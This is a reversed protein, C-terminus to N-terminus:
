RRDEAALYEPNAIRVKDTVTARVHDLVEDHRGDLSSDRIAAALEANLGALDAEHGLLAVLRRLEEGDAAPSDRLEREVIGLVNVVVRTHFRLRGELVTMVEDELFARSAALLDPASPLDQAM